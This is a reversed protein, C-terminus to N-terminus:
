KDLPILRSYKERGRRIPVGVPHLSEGTLCQVVLLNRAVQGLAQLSVGLSTLAGSRMGAM